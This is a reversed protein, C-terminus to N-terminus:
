GKRCCTKEPTQGCSLDNGGLRSQYKSSHTRRALHSCKSKKYLGTHKCGRLKRLCRQEKALLYSRSFNNCCKGAAQALKPYETSYTSQSFSKHSPVSRESDNKWM